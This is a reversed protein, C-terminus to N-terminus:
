RRGALIRRATGIFNKLRERPSSRAAAESVMTGDTNMTPALTAHMALTRAKVLRKRRAQSPQMRDIENVDLPEIALEGAALVSRVLREGAAPRNM